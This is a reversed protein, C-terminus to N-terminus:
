GPKALFRRVDDVAIGDIEVVKSRSHVGGVIRVSRAPVAFSKALFAVLAENAAGEAPVATLRIKVADGHTGALENASARPQVHVAFRVGGHAATIPPGTV